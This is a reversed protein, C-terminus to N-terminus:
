HTIPSQAAQALQKDQARKVLKKLKGEISADGIHQDQLIGDSDITFTQPIAHINFSKSIAGQSGHDLYQPWTMENKAIFAKWKTEDTDLSVSLVILPQGSFKKAIERMHPLAEVCAPCWTAWFDILVVKGQLRDLSINQGDLTTIVFPPAMPARALEPENMYLQARQREPGDQTTLSLYQQFRSKAADDQKLQALVRGDSFLAAPFKPGATLAKIFEDHARNFIDEKHRNMGEVLLLAGYDYHALAINTPGQAEGVLEAAATEAAKWDQLEIGYKVVQKQCAVCHGGDQKDAKKFAEFASTTMGRQHLYEEAQKYTKQAKEDTPGDATKDQSLACTCLCSLILLLTTDRM